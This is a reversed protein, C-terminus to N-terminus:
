LLASSSPSVAAMESNHMAALRSNDFNCGELHGQDSQFVDAYGSVVCGACRRVHRPHMDPTTGSM